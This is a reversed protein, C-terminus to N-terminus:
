IKIAMSELDLVNLNETSSKHELTCIGPLGRARHVSRVNRDDRRTGFGGAAQLM